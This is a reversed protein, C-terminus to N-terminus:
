KSIVWWLDVASEKEHEIQFSVRSTLKGLFAQVLLEFHLPGFRFCRFTMNEALM